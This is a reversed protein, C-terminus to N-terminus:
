GPCGSKWVVEDGIEPLTIPTPEDFGGFEFTGNARATTGGEEVNVDRTATIPRDTEADIWVTLTMNEITASELSETVGTGGVSPVAELEAKTPYGVVVSANQGDVTGTGRWYVNTRNLTELQQGIPTYTLWAESQSLNQREWGIRGCENYATRGDIFALAPEVNGWRDSLVDVEATANTHRATGNVRVDGTLRLTIQEDDGTAVVRTDLSSRYSRVEDM